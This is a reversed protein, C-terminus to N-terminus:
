LTALWLRLRLGLETTYGVTASRIQGQEDVVFSTPVAQVGYQRALSAQPDHLVPFTVDHEQMYGLIEAAATDEMAVTIVPYDKALSDITGLELRCVPCWTAWFHVLM